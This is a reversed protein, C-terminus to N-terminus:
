LAAFQCVELLQPNNQTVKNLNSILDSAPIQENTVIQSFSTKTVEAFKNRAEMSKCGQLVSLTELKEGSGQSMQRTLDQQNVEVFYQTEKDNKVIGNASCGSTGSTIGLPQTFFSHNTTMAFLQLLKTNRSIIMSGLGCGADGAFAGLSGVTVIIALWYKM